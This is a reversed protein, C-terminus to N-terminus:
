FEATCAICTVENVNVEGDRELLSNSLLRGCYAGWMAGQVRLLGGTRETDEILGRIREQAGMDRGLRNCIKM